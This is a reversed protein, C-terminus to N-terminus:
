AAVLFPMTQHGALSIFNYMPTIDYSYHDANAGAALFQFGNVIAQIDEIPHMLDGMVGLISPGDLNQVANFVTQEISGVGNQPAIAYLETAGQDPNNTNAFDGWFHTVEAANPLQCQMQALTMNCAGNPNVAQAIGGSPGGNKDPPMPWGAFENGSAFGALRQPNGEVVVAVIRSLIDMRNYKWCWQIFQCVVMAGQSYGDLVLSNYRYFPGPTINFGPYIEGTTLYILSQVGMVVSPDMPITAAPYDGVPQWFFIDPENEALQQGVLAPQPPTTDFMNTGTGSVTLVIHQPM